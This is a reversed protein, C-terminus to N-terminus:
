TLLASGVQAGVMVSADLFWVWRPAEMERTRAAAAADAIGQAGGM